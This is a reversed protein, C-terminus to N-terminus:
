HHRRHHRRGHHGRRHGGRHHRGGRRVAVTHSGSRYSSSSSAVSSHGFKSGFFPIKHALATLQAGFGHRFVGKKYLTYGGYSLAGIVVFPMLKRTWQRLKWILDSM